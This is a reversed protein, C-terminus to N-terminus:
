MIRKDFGALFYMFSSFPSITQTFYFPRRAVCSSSIGLVVHTYGLLPLDDIYAMDYYLDEKLFHMVFNHSGM